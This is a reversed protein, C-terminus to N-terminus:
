ALPTPVYKKTSLVAGAAIGALYVMGTVLLRQAMVTAVVSSKSMGFSNLYFFMSADQAGLGMPIMSLAGLIFSSADATIIKWLSIDSGLFSIIGQLFLGSLFTNLGYFLLLTVASRANLLAISERMESLFKRVRSEERGKKLFLSVGLVFLVGLIGAILLAPVPLINRGLYEASGIGAILLTFANGAFFDIMLMASSRSYDVNELQKLLYATVPYGVKGPASSQALASSFYILVIHQVKVRYGLSNLLFANKLVQNLSISLFVVILLILQWPRFSLLVHIVDGVRIGTLWLLILAVVFIFIFAFRRVFRSVEEMMQM